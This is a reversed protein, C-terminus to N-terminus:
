ENDKLLKDKLQELQTFFSGDWEEVTYKKCNDILESLENLAISIMDEKLFFRIKEFQLYHRERIDIVSKLRTDIQKLVSLFGEALYIEDFNNDAQHQAAGQESSYLPLDEFLWESVTETLFPEGNHFKALHFTPFKEVFQKTVIKISRAAEQFKLIECCKASLYSGEIWYPSTTLTKEIRVLLEISPSSIMQERYDSVKDIPVAQMTTIGQANMEPLQVISHWLGFRRSTYGLTSSPQLECTVDAVQLYFQKLQRVNTLDFKNIEPINSSVKPETPQGFSNPKDGLIPNETLENRNDLTINESFDSREKVFHCLRLLTPKASPVYESLQLLIEETLHQVKENESVTFKIEQNNSLANDIRELILLIAKEKFRNITNNASPKPYANFLFKRNFGSFLSLFDILNSKFEKYFLAYSLYQLVKYDKCVEALYRHCNLILSEWDITDHQLSGFKMIQEDIALFTPCEEDPYGAPFYEGVIDELINHYKMNGVM